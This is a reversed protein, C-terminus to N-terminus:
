ANTRSLLGSLPMSSERTRGSGRDYGNSGGLEPGRVVDRATLSSLDLHSCGRPVHILCMHADNITRAAYFAHGVGRYSHWQTGAHVTDKEASIGPKSGMMGALLGSRAVDARQESKQSSSETTYHTQEPKESYGVFSQSADSLWDQLRCM